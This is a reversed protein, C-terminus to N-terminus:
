DLDDEQALAASANRDADLGRLRRWSLPRSFLMSSSRMFSMTLRM